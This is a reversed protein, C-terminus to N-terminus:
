PTSFDNEPTTVIGTEDTSILRENTFTGATVVVRSQDPPTQLELRNVTVGGDEDITLANGSKGRFVVNYYIHIDAWPENIVENIDEPLNEAYLTIGGTCGLRKLLTQDDYISQADLWVGKPWTVRYSRSFSKKVNYKRYSSYKSVGAINWPAAGDRDICTHVIGDGTMTLNSDYQAEAMSLTNAKPTVKVLISNIRVQDYMNKFLAFESNQTVDYSSTANMLPFNHYVYNSVTAGQSPISTMTMKCTLAFTDMNKAKAKRKAKTVVKKAAAVTPKRKYMTKKAYKRTPM